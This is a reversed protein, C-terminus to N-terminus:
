TTGVQFVVGTKVEKKFKLYHAVGNLIWVGGTSSKPLTGCPSHSNEFADVKQM